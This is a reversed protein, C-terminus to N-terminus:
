DTIVFEEPFNILYLVDLISQLTELNGTNDDTFEVNLDNMYNVTVISFGTQTFYADFLNGYTQDVASYVAPPLIETTLDGGITAYSIENYLAVQAENPISSTNESGESYVVDPDDLPDYAASFQEFATGKTALILHIGFSTQVIQSDLYEEVGDVTNNDLNVFGDYIIKLRAAFAPDFGDVSNNDLSTEPTLDETMIKFGYQKIEAWENLPDGMLSDEYETVIEAFTLGDDIKDFLLTDFALKVANYEALEIVTLGERYAEFDDPVFDNDFDVYILLHEANINFYEAAQAAIYDEASAYTITPYIVNPQLDQAIYIQQIVEAESKVNFALFYFEEWTYDTSSFGYSAYGNNAFTTKMVRLNDRNALMADSDSNLYDYDDGFVDFYADSKLVMDLKAIEISYFIGIRNEMHAFLQDATIEVDGITAMVTKSGKNDFKIGNEFEYMLALNPDFIEFDVSEYITDIIEEIVDVTVILDIIETRLDLVDSDSLDDFAVIDEESIKYVYSSFDGFAQPSYSYNIANDNETDLSLTQFVYTTLGVYPDTDDRDKVMDDFNYTAVDTFDNCYTAQTINEPIPTEWPNMYNYVKVFNSFVGDDTLQVTNEGLIFGDSTVEEIPVVADDTYLGIGLNFNPVLNFEDFVLGAETESEFRLEIACVDGYTSSEYYSQVDDDTLAYVDDDTADLMYQKALKTKAIGLETYARLDDPDLPDYGSIILNQQFGDIYDQDLEPDAQIEAIVDESTTLYTSYRVEENIEDETVKAIEDALLIRDVYDTLYNLGDVNRMVEWLEDNTITFDDMTLYVDDGNSLMPETSNSTIMSCGVAAGIIILFLGMIISGKILVSKNM